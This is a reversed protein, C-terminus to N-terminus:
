LFPRSIRVDSLMLPTDLMEFLIDPLDFRGIVFAAKEPNATCQDVLLGIPRTSVRAFHQFAFLLSHCPQGGIQKVASIHSPSTASSLNHLVLFRGISWIHIPLRDKISRFM